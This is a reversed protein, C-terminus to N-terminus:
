DIVTQAAASTIVGIGYGNLTFEGDHKTAHVAGNTTQDLKLLTDCAGIGEFWDQPTLRVAKRSTNVFVASLNGAADAAVISDVKPLEPRNAPFVIEDGFRIHQAFLQKALAAPSPKGELSILGYAESHATATWRLEMDAGGRILHILASVYYAAGLLNQNYGLTYYHEHHSMTNLEGCVNLVGRGELLRAVGRASSEYGPTQALLLPEFEAENPSDPAGWMVVGPLTESPVAPRWDGYRHWSVFGLRREDIEGLLRVIWDM